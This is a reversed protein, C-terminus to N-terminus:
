PPSLSLSPPNGEGDQLLVLLLFGIVDDTIKTVNHRTSVPLPMTQRMNTFFGAQPFIFEFEFQSAVTLIPICYSVMRPQIYITQIHIIIPNALLHSRIVGCRGVNDEKAVAWLFCVCQTSQVILASNCSAASLYRYYQDGHHDDDPGTLRLM